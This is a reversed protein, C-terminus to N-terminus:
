IVLGELTVDARAKEGGVAVEGLMLLLVALLQIGTFDTVLHEVAFIDHLLVVPPVAYTLPEPAKELALSAQFAPGKAVFAHRRTPGLCIFFSSRSAFPSSPVLYLFSGDGQGMQLLTLARSPLSPLHAKPSDVRPRMLGRPTCLHEGASTIHVFMQQGVAILLVGALDAGALEESHVDKSIVNM